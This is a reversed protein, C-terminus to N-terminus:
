ESHEIIIDVKIVRGSIPDQPVYKCFFERLKRDLDKYIPRHSSLSEELQRSTTASDRSGLKWHEGEAEPADDEDADSEDEQGERELLDKQRKEAAEREESRRKHEAEDYADVLMKIRAIAEQNM